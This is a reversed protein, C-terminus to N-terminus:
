FSAQSDGLPWVPFPKVSLILLLTNSSLGIYLTIHTFGYQMFQQRFLDIHSLLCGNRVSVDQIVAM